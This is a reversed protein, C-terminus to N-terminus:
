GGDSWSVQEDDVEMTRTNIEEGAWPPAWGHWLSEELERCGVHTLAHRLERELEAVLYPVLALRGTDFM